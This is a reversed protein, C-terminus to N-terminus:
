TTPEGEPDTNDPEPPNLQNELVTIREQLEFIIEALEKITKSKDAEDEAIVIPKDLQVYIDSNTYAASGLGKVAVESDDFKVTGNTTGTTLTHTPLDAHIVEIIGNVENVASVYKGAIDTTDAYDLAEIWTKAQTKAAAEAASAKDEAYTKANSEATNAKTTADTQAATLAANAKNTADTAATSIANTIQAQLKSMAGNVTDEAKIADVKDAELETYGTLKLTGVNEHTTTIAGTTDNFDISTLVNAVDDKTEKKDTLSGKPITVTRVGSSKIHGMEDYKVYPVNFNSGFDPTVATTDGVTEKENGAAAHSIIFKDNNTDAQLLIWRNGTDVTVIDTITKAVLSTDDSKTGADVKNAGSNKIGITKIGKPLSYTVKKSSTLHGAADWGIQQIDFSESSNEDNFNIKGTTDENFQEVFHQISVSDNNIDTKMQIWKNGPNLTLTDTMADAVIEGEIHQTNVTAESAAGIVISSFSEPLTVTHTEANLIHGAEDFLFCPVEFTNDTNLNTTHDENQILGYPVNPKTEGIFAALEHGFKVTGETASDLKIWKNSTQLTLTDQTNDASQIGTTSAPAIVATDGANDTVINKYGYPLTVTETNKGVVHGMSDVIPTYLQLSDGAGKNLGTQTGNDINKDSDTKTDDVKTFRHEITIKPNDPSGNISTYIWQNESSTGEVPDEENGLNNYGFTQATTWDSSQMQGYINTIVFQTPILESVKAILDKITNIAGQLSNTNRDLEDEGELVQLVRLLAGHMTNMSRAFGELKEAAPTDSRTGLTIGAPRDLVNKNWVSGVPFDSTDTNENKMVYLIEKADKINGEYKTFTYNSKVRYFDTGDYYIENKANPDKLWEEKTFSKDKTTDRRIIMGMLDHVSNICGALTQVEEIDFEYGNGKTKEKILRLGQTSDWNIDLNRADGNNIDKNGYVIDWIEAITNGLSPLMIKIEQTDPKVGYSTGNSHKNYEAGSQGTPLISISNEIEGNDNYPYVGEGLYDKNAYSITAKDFGDKNYYIAGNYEEKYQSQTDSESDYKWYDYKVIEDSPYTNEDISTGTSNYKEGKIKLGWQPQWHLNYYVSTSKTDFHPTIPTLTPADPTLHFTPVVANLEAIMVYKERDNTYVKQWVTSDYGRGKGYKRVDINFNEIYPDRDESDSILAFVATKDKDSKPGICQMLIYYEGKNGIQTWDEDVKVRVIQGKLVANNSGKYSENKDATETYQVINIAEFNNAVTYFSINEFDEETYGQNRDYYVETYNDGYEKKGFGEEGDYYLDYEVLVYRGLYVGDTTANVDMMTRNPYTRDFSFQTKTTNTINGYFGM